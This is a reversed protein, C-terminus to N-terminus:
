GDVQLEVETTVDVCGKLTRFLPCQDRHATHEREAVEQDEARLRLYYHVHIRKIVLVQDEAEVEGVAESTLRGEGAPIKCAELAAGFSGVLAGATAAVFYDLTTAHPEHDMDPPYYHQAVTGHVGFLIPAKEVPLYARRLPGRVREIRVRSTYVVEGM